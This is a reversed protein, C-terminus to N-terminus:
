KNNEKRARIDVGMRDNLARFEDILKDCAAKTGYCKATMMVSIDGNPAKVLVRKVGAPHAPHEPPTFSWLTYHPRDDVITWGGQQYIKVGPSQRLAALAADPNPYGFQTAEPSDPAPMTDAAKAATLCGFALWLLLCRMVSLVPALM